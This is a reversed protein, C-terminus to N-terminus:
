DDTDVCTLWMRHPKGGRESKPNWAQVFTRIRKAELKTGARTFQRMLERKTEKQCFEQAYPVIHTIRYRVQEDPQASKIMKFTASWKGPNLLSFFPTFKKSSDRRHIEVFM